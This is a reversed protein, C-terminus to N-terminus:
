FSFLFMSRSEYTIYKDLKHLQPIMLVFKYILSLIM